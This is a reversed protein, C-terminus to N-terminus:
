SAQSGVHARAAIHNPLPPTQRLPWVHAREVAVDMPRPVRSQFDGRVCNVDCRATQTLKKKREPGAPLIWPKLPVGHPPYPVSM